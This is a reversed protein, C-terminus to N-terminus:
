EDALPTNYGDPNKSQWRWLDACMREVDLTIKWGVDRSAAVTDAVLITVDGPRRVGVKTPLKKGCAKEFAAVMEFVTTGTGTGLNYVFFQPKEVLKAIASLHGKALDVVHIYDRIATGDRTPYDDGFITLQSLKGGAVKALYPMLNQPVGNPDEGILGSEHAGCPNFYRLCGFHWRNPNTRHFDKMFTEIM